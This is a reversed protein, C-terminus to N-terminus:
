ILKEETDPNAKTFHMLSLLETTKNERAIGNKVLIFFPYGVILMEKPQAIYVDYDNWQEQYDVSVFGNEKAFQLAIKENEM